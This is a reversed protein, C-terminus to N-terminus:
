QNKVFGSAFRQLRTNNNANRARHSCKRKMVFATLQPWGARTRPEHQARADLSQTAVPWILHTADNFILYHMSM